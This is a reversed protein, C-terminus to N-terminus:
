CHEAAFFLKQMIFAPDGRLEGRTKVNLKYNLVQASSLSTSWAEQALTWDWLLYKIFDILESSKLDSRDGISLRM